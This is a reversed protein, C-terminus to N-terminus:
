ELHVLLQTDLTLGHIASHIHRPFFTEVPLMCAGPLIAAIYIVSWFLQWGEEAKRLRASICPNQWSKEGPGATSLHLLQYRNSAHTCYTYWLHTNQQQGSQLQTVSLSGQRNRNSQGRRHSCSNESQASATFEAHLKQVLRSEAHGEGGHHMEM